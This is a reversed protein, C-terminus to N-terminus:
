GFKVFAPVMLIVMVVLLMLFMPILLKTGAEEGLIRAQKKRDEFASAAEQELLFVMEASGRKLNQILITSLTRYKVLPNRAGLHEYAETEPVGKEMEGFVQVIEEFGARTRGSKKLSRRYDKATREIAKRMSLGAGLLLTLKSIIHPYDMMQQRLRKEEEKRVNQKQSYLYLFAALLGMAALGLGTSGAKEAWLIEKGGVTAPLNLKERSPDELDLLGNIQAALAEEGTMVKPFVRLALSILRTQGQCSLEAEALLPIGEEPIDKGIAGTYDMVAAPTTVWSIGVPLGEVATMLDLDRDVHDASLDELVNKELNGAAEALYAEAEEETYRRAGVRVEVEKEEGDITAKLVRSYEGSGYDGRELYGSSVTDEGREVFFIVIGLVAFLGAILCANKLTKKSFHDALTAPLFRKM